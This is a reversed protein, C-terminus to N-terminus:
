CRHECSTVGDARRFCSAAPPSALGSRRRRRRHFLLKRIFSFGRAADAAAVGDVVAWRRGTDIAVARQSRLSQEAVLRFPHNEM